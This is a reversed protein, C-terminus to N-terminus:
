ARADRLVTKSRPSASARSRPPIRARRRRRCGPADRHRNRRRCASRVVSRSRGACSPAAARASPWANKSLAARHEAEFEPLAKSVWTRRRSLEARIASRGPSASARLQAAVDDLQAPPDLAGVPAGRHARFAAHQDGVRELGRGGRIGRRATVRRDAGRRGQPRRRRPHQVDPVGGAHGDGRHRGQAAALARTLRPHPFRLTAGTGLLVIEPAHALLGAFDAETLADFGAARGNPSPTRRSCSATRYEQTGVRVWGPGLGTIVNGNPTSLHFKM